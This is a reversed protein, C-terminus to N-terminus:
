IKYVMFKGRKHRIPEPTDNTEFQDNNNEDKPKFVIRRNEIIRSEYLIKSNKMEEAEDVPLQYHKLNMPSYLISDQSSEETYEQNFADPKFVKNVDLNIIPSKGFMEKEPTYKCYGDRKNTDYKALESHDSINADINSWSALSLDSFLMKKAAGLVDETYQKERLDLEIASDSSRRQEILEAFNCVNTYIQDKLDDTDFDPIILTDNQDQYFNNPNLTEHSFELPLIQSQRFPSHKHNFIENLRSDGSSSTVNTFM